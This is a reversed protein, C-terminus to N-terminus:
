QEKKKLKDIEGKLLEVLTQSQFFGATDFLKMFEWETESKAGDAEITVHYIPDFKTTWTAVEINSKADNVGVFKVNPKTRGIIWLIFSAIGYLVVGALTVTKTDNFAYKKDIYFLGASIAVTFLGLGLKFDALKFDEEYGLQGLASPLNEDTTNRLDVM